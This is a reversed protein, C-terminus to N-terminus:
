ATKRLPTPAVPPQVEASTGTARDLQAHGAQALAQEVTGADYWRGNVHVAYHQQVRRIEVPGRAALQTLVDIAERRLSRMRASM